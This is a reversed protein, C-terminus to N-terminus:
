PHEPPNHTHRVVIGRSRMGEWAWVLAEARDADTMLVEDLNSLVAGLADIQEPIPIVRDNRFDSM